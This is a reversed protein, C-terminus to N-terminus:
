GNGEPRFVHHKARHAAPTTKRTLPILSSQGFKCDESAASRLNFTTVTSGLQHLLTHGMRAYASFNNGPLHGVQNRTITM